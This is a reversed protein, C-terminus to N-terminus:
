RMASASTSQVKPSKGQLIVAVPLEVLGESSRIRVTVNEAAWGTQELADMSVPRLTIDAPSSYERHEWEAAVRKKDAAVSEIEFSRAQGTPLVQIRETTNGGLAFHVVKPKVEFPCGRNQRVDITTPTEAGECFVNISAGSLGYDDSKKVTVLLEAEQANDSSGVRLVEASVWAATSTVKKVALPGDHQLQRLRVKRVSQGDPGFVSEDLYLAGPQATVPAEDVAPLGKAKIVLASAGGDAFNVYVHKSDASGWRQRSLTCSIDASQGPDLWKASARINM